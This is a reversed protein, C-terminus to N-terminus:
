KDKDPDVVEGGARTFLAKLTKESLKASLPRVSGDAFAVQFVDKAGVPDLKPLPKKPDFPFDGPKAWPVGEATEVLM